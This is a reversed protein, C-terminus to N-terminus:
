AAKTPMSDRWIALLGDFILQDVLEHEVSLTPTLKPAAGGTVLVKPTRQCYRNLKSVMREVAGAIANAGGTMLADSTNTPFELVEGPYVRLGATGSELAELMLGFGPLIIGGLFLGEPTIAEVTVATGVMVVIIPEGAYMLRAGIMAAWRDAGLRNPFDYGNVLGCQNAQPVIWNAELQWATQLQEEVRRKVAEGAVVCGVMADPKPHSAWTELALDDIEEHVVAGGVLPAPSQPSEFLAWKLRTNGIDVTLITM